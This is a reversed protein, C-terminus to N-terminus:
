KVCLCITLNSIDRACQSSCNADVPYGYFGFLQFNSYIFPFHLLKKYFNFFIFVDWCCAGCTCHNNELNKLKAKFENITQSKIISSPLNNWLISGGFYVSNLGLRFSKVPPLFVKTGEHPICDFAKSLDLLVTGM